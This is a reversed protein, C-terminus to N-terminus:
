IVPKRIGQIRTLVVFMVLLCVCAANAAGAATVTLKGIIAAFMAISFLVLLTMSM